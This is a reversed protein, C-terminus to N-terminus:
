FIGHAAPENPRLSWVGDLARTPNERNRMHRSRGLRCKTSPRCTRRVTLVQGTAHDIKQVRRSRINAPPEPLEKADLWADALDASVDEFLMWRHGAVVKDHKIATCIATDTQGVAAKQLAYVAVITGLDLTM